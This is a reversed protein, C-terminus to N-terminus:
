VRQLVEMPLSAVCFVFYHLMYLESNERFKRTWIVQSHSKNFLGYGRIEVHSTGNHYLFVTCFNSVNQKVIGTTINFGFSSINKCIQLM